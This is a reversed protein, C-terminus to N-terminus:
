KDNNSVSMRGIFIADVLTKLNDYVKRKLLGGFFAFTRNHAVKVVQVVGGIVTREHSWDFQCTEGAPFLLLVFAHKIAPSTPRSAKWAKVYRQV